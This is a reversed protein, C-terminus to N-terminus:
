NKFKENYKKPAKGYALTSDSVIHLKTNRDSIREHWNFFKIRQLQERVAHEGLDAGWIGRINEGHFFYPLPNADLIFLPPDSRATDTLEQFLGAQMHLMEELSDYQKQRISEDGRWEALDHINRLTSECIKDIKKMVENYDELVYPEYWNTPRMPVDPQQDPTSPQAQPSSAPTTPAQINTPPATFTPAVYPIPQFAFTSQPQATTTTSSHGHVVPQGVLKQLVERDAPAQAGSSAIARQCIPDCLSRSIDICSSSAFAAVCVPSQKNVHPPTYHKGLHALSCLNMWQEATFSGKTLLDAIQKQEWM